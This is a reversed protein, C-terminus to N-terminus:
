VSQAVPRAKGEDQEKVKHEEKDYEQVQVPRRMRM